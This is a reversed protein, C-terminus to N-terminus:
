GWGREAWYTRSVSREQPNCHPMPLLSAKMSSRFFPYRSPEIFTNNKDRAGMADNSSRPDIRIKQPDKDFVSVKDADNGDLRIAGGIIIATLAIGNQM